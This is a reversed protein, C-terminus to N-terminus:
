HPLHHSGPPLSQFTAAGALDICSFTNQPHLRLRKAVAAAEVALNPQLVYYSPFRSTEHNLRTSVQSTFDMSNSSTKPPDQPEKPQLNNCDCKYLLLLLLKRLAAFDPQEHLTKANETTNKKRELVKEGMMPSLSPHFSSLGPLSPM